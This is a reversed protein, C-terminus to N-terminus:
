ISMCALEDGDFSVVTFKGDEYLGYSAPFDGRPITVSGPNFCLTQDIVEAVPLHTHGSVLIDGDTLGLCNGAKHTHGHTLFLRRGSPLLVWNYDAMMPFHLLVQDVESDCNGRVAIIRHAFENLLEAVQIPDYGAPLPNRPGHNLVDGLLILHQAGSLEFAKLMRECSQACGHIDSAFFLKM